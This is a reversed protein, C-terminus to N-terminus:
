LGPSAGPFLPYFVHWFDTAPKVFEIGIRRTGNKKPGVHVVRCEREEQTFSHVLLLSQGKRVDADLVIRAGHADVSITRTIDRFPSNQPTRGYVQVPVHLPLRKSRRQISMADNEGLPYPMGCYIVEM